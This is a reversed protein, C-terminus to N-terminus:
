YAAIADSLQGKARLATGLNNYAPAYDPKIAVARQYHRVADDTRGDEQLGVALNSETVARMTTTSLMPWNCFVAAAAVAGLTWARDGRLERAAPPSDAARSSPKKGRGRPPPVPEARTATFWAFGDSVGAAAFIMLMPVLPYRYRAFVYFAVVSA